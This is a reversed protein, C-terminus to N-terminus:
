LPSQRHCSSRLRFDIRQAFAQSVFILDSGTGPFAAAEAGNVTCRLLDGTIEEPPFLRGDQRSHLRGREFTQRAFETLTKKGALFQKGLVVNCVSEHLAHFERWYGWEEDQFRFRATIRGISEAQNTVLLGIFESATPVVRLRHHVAFAASIANITSGWDVLAKV